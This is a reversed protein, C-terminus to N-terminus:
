AVLLIKFGKDKLSNLVNNYKINYKSKDIPIIDHMLFLQQSNIDNHLDKMIPTIILLEKIGQEIEEKFTM